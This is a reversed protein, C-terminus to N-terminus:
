KSAAMEALTIPSSLQGEEFAAALEQAAIGVKQAMGVGHVTLRYQTSCVGKEILKAMVPWPDQTSPDDKMANLESRIVTIPSKRRAWLYMMLTTQRPTLQFQVSVISHAM